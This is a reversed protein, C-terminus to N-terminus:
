LIYFSNGWLQRAVAAYKSKSFVILQAKARLEKFYLIKLIFWCTSQNYNQTRNNTEVIYFAEIIHFMKM